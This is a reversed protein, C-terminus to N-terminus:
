SKRTNCAGCLAMDNHNILTCSSCVWQEKTLFVHSCKSCNLADQANDNKCTPCRKTTVAYPQECAPCNPFTIDDLWVKACMGCTRTNASPEIEILEAEEPKMRVLAMDQNTGLPRGKPQAPLRAEAKPPAVDMAVPREAAARKPPASDKTEMSVPRESAARKPPASDKIEMAVPGEAARAAQGRARRELMDVRAKRIDEMSRVVPKPPAVVPPPADELVDAASPASPKPARPPAAAAAKPAAAKSVAPPSVVPPKSVAPPSVAPPKPAVPRAVPPSAAPPKLAVPRAAPPSAAPASPADRLSKRVSEPTLRSLTYSLVPCPVDKRVSVYTNCQPCVARGLPICLARKACNVCLFHVNNPISCEFVVIKLDPSLDDYCSNCQPYTPEEACVKRLYAQEDRRQQARAAEAQVLDMGTLDPHLRKNEAEDLGYKGLRVQRWTVSVLKSAAEATLALKAKADFADPLDDKPSRYSMYGWPLPTRPNVYNLYRKGEPTRLSEETFGATDVIQVFGQSPPRFETKDLEAPAVWRGSIHYVMRPAMAREPVVPGHLIENRGARVLLRMHADTYKGQADVPGENKLVLTVQTLPPQRNDFQRLDITRYGVNFIGPVTFESNKWDPIVACTVYAMMLPDWGWLIDELEFKVGILTGNTMRYALISGPAVNSVPTVKAKVSVTVDTSTIDKFLDAQVFERASQRCVWRPLRMVDGRFETDRVANGPAFVPPGEPERAVAVAPQSVKREVPKPAVQGLLGDEGGPPALPVLERTETRGRKAPSPNTTNLIGEVADRMHSLRGGKHLSVAKKCDPCSDWDRAGAFSAAERACLVKLAVPVKAEEDPARPRRAVDAHQHLPFGCTACPSNPKMGMGRLASQTSRCLQTAPLYQSM